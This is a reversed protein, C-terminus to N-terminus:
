KETFLENVLAGEEGCDIGKTCLGSNFLYKDFWHIEPRKFTHDKNQSMNLHSIFYGGSESLFMRGREFRYQASDSQLQCSTWWNIRIGGNRKRIKGSDLTYETCNKQLETDLVLNLFERPKSPALAALTEPYYDALYTQLHLIREGPDAVDEPAFTVSGGQLSPIVSHEVLVYHQPVAFRFSEQSPAAPQEAWAPLQVSSLVMLCTSTIACRTFVNSSM